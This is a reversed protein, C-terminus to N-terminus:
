APFTTEEDRRPPLQATGNVEGPFAVGTIEAPTGGPPEGKTNAARTGILIV